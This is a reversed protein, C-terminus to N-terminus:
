AYHPAEMSGQGYGIRADNDVFGVTEQSLVTKLKGRHGM